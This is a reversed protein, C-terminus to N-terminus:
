ETHPNGIIEAWSHNSTTGKEYDGEQQLHQVEKERSVPNKQDQKIATDLVNQSEHVDEMEEERLKAHPRQDQSKESEQSYNGSGTSMEQNEANNLQGRKARFRNKQPPQFVKM